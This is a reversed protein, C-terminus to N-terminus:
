RDIEEQWESYALFPKAMGLDVLHGGLGDDMGLSHEPGFLLSAANPLSFNRAHYSGHEELLSEYSPWQWPCEARWMVVLEGEGTTTPCAVIHGFHLGALADFFAPDGMYFRDSSYSDKMRGKARDSLIDKEIAEMEEQVPGSNIFIRPAIRLDEGSRGLYHDMLQGSQRLVITLKGGKAFCTYLDRLFKTEEETFEEGNIAKEELADVREQLGSVGIGTALTLAIPGQAGPFYVLFAVVLAPLVIGAIKLFLRRKRRKPKKDPPLPQETM